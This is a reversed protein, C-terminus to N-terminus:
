GPKAPQQVQGQPREGVREVVRMTRGISRNDTVVDFKAASLIHNLAVPDRVEGMRISADAEIPSAVCARDINNWCDDFGVSTVHVVEGTCKRAGRNRARGFAPDDVRAGQKKLPLRTNDFRLCERRPCIRPQRAPRM